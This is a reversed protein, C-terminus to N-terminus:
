SHIDKELRYGYKEILEPEVKDADRFLREPFDQISRRLTKTSGILGLHVVRSRSEYVIGKHWVASPAWNGSSTRPKKEFPLVKKINTIEPLQNNKVLRTFTTSPITSEGKKKRDTNFQLRASNLDWYIIGNYTIWYTFPHAVPKCNILLSSPTEKIKKEEINLRTNKDNIGTEIMTFKLKGNGSDWLELLKTNVRSQDDNDNKTNLTRFHTLYRGIRDLFNASQGWYIKGTLSDVICYIGAKFYAMLDNEKKIPLVQTQPQQILVSNINQKLEDFNKSTLPNTKPVTVYISNDIIDTYSKKRLHRRFTSKAIKTKKSQNYKELLNKVSTYTKGEFIFNWSTKEPSPAGAYRENYRYKQPILNIIQDQIKIRWKSENKWLPNIALIFIQFDSPQKQNNWEVYLPYCDHYNNQLTGAHDAIWEIIYDGEGIYIKSTLTNYIMYIAPLNISLLNEIFPGINM